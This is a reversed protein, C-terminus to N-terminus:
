EQSREKREKEKIIHKKRWQHHRKVLFLSIGFFAIFGIFLLLGTYEEM